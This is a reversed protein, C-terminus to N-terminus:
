GKMYRVAVSSVSAPFPERCYIVPTRLLVEKMPGPLLPLAGLTAALADRERAQEILADIEDRPVAAAEM